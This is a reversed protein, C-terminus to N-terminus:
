WASFFSTGVRLQITCNEPPPADHKSFALPYSIKFKAWAVGVQWIGRNQCM